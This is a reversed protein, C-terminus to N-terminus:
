HSFRAFLSKLEDAGSVKEVSTGHREYFDGSYALPEDSSTLSFVLLLKDFYNVLRMNRLIDSQITPEIPEAKVLDKVKSFYEDANHYKLRIEDQVGTIYFDNYLKYHGKHIRSYQEADTKKDAIGVLVYGKSHAKTNSMATLTKIIKSFCKQNFPPNAALDHLGIKFDFLQQEIKSQMLLNELKSIWEDVAPDEGDCDVFSDRIVGQVACICEERYKAKWRESSIESLVRSGIGDLKSALREYNEIKKNEKLLNYFALFVVQFSRAMGEGQEEFLLESFPKGSAEITKQLQDLVCLFNEQIKKSNRKEIEITSKEILLADDEDYGFIKNLNRASPAVDKGLLMYLLVYAVLEEDRSVRMNKTTIIGNKTWFIDSLNIGYPLDRNSLSIEEMQSLSLIDSPSSDRRISASIKRVLESFPHVSGAQRLDQASLQRGTANIRRFIEEIHRDDFNSISLPLQYNIFHGCLERNLLPTNQKINGSDLLSKTVATTELDFYGSTGNIEVSFEGRIFTFIANLRQMGDIIEYKNNQVNALLILPVPYDLLISNIFQQKEEITWVLKRQYKRNVIFLDSCFWDFLRQINENRILLGSQEM